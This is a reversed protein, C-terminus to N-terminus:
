NRGFALEFDQGFGFDELQQVGAVAAQVLNEAIARQGHQIAAIVEVVALFQQFPIWREIDVDDLAFAADLEIDLARRGACEDVVLHDAADVLM